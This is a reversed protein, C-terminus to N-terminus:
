KPFEGASITDTDLNGNYVATLTITWGNYGESDSTFDFSGDCKYYQTETGFLHDEGYWTDGTAYYVHYKGLPVDMEVTMGGRVFFRVEALKAQSNLYESSYEELYETCGSFTYPDLVVYIGSGLPATVSFPALSELGMYEFVYGNQPTLKPNLAPRPKTAAPVTAKPHTEAPAMISPSDSKAPIEPIDLYLLLFLSTAAIVSYVVVVFADRVLLSPIILEERASSELAIEQLELKRASHVRCRLLAYLVNGCLIGWEWFRSDLLWILGASILFVLAHRLLSFKLDLYDPDGPLIPHLTRVMRVLQPNLYKLVPDGNGIVIRWRSSLVSWCVALGGLSVFLAITWYM